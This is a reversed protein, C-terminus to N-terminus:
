GEVKCPGTTAEIDDESNLLHVRKGQYAVGRGQLVRFHEIREVDIHDGTEDNEVRQVRVKRSDNTVRNDFNIITKQYHQGRGAAIRVKKITGRQYDIYQSENDPNKIRIVPDDYTRESANESVLLTYVTKQYAPGRGRAYRIKKAEKIDVYKEVDAECAVDIGEPGIRRKIIERSSAM